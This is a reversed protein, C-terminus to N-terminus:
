SLKYQSRFRKWKCHSMIGTVILGLLSITTGVAIAPGMSFPDDLVMLQLSVAQSRHGLLICQYHGQHQPEARDLRLTSGSGAAEERYQSLNVPTRLWRVTANGACRAHCEISLARGRMGNPPLSWIRLSCTPVTGTSLGTGKTGFGPFTTTAPRVTTSGAILDGPAPHETSPPETAAAPELITESDPEWLRTTLATTPDDTPISPAPSLATTTVPGATSPSRTSTAMAVPQETVAGASVTVSAVQTFTEQGVSLTVECRFEMGEEVEKGAVSLTSVIDFLEEDTETVDFDEEELVQDGWYWKVVLGMLPYVRQASCHLSAPQGPELDRPTAELQLTDPLAYVKLNVSDQYHQGHCTGQCIKTGATAVVASSVHLISHTPFSTISGLNTDLGKWQVAGGTCALSCNLQVSGGYRVVPEQPMVVLKNAPRGSCGWLLGLLLLLPALEM